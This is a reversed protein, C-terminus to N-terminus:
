ARAQIQINSNIERINEGQQQIIKRFRFRESRKHVKEAYHDSLLSIFEEFSTSSPLDANPLSMLKQNLETGVVTIFLAVQEDVPCKCVKFYQRLRDEYAHINPNLIESLSQHDTYITFEVM